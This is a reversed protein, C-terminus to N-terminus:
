AGEVKRALSVPHGTSWRAASIHQIYTGMSDLPAANPADVPRDDEGMAVRSDRISQAKCKKRVALSTLSAPAM